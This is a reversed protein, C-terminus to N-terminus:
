EYAEEGEGQNQEYNKVEEELEKAMGRLKVSFARAGEKALIYETSQGSKLIGFVNQRLGAWEDMDDMVAKFDKHNSLRRFRGVREKLQKLEDDM